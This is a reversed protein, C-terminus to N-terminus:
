NGLLLTHSLNLHSLSMCRNSPLIHKSSLHIHSNDLTTLLFLPSILRSLHRNVALALALTISRDQQFTPIPQKIDPPFLLAQSSPPWQALHFSQPPSTLPPHSPISPDSHLIHLSFHPSSNNFSSFHPQSSHNHGILSHHCTTGRVRRLDLLPFQSCSILTFAFVGCYVDRNAWIVRKPEGRRQNVRSGKGKEAM